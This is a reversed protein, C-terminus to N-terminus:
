VKLTCHSHGPFTFSLVTKVSNATCQYIYVFTRVCLVPHAYTITSNDNAMNHLMTLANSRKVHNCTSMKTYKSISTICLMCCMLFKFNTMGADWNNM